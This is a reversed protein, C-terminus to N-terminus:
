CIFGDVFSCHSLNGGFGLSALSYLMNVCLLIYVIIVHMYTEVEGCRKCDDTRSMRFRLIREKTYFDRSVLRLYIHRLKVNKCQDRFKSIQKGDYGVIGLRQDFNQM